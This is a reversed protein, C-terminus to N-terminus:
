NRSAKMAEVWPLKGLANAVRVFGTAEKAQETPKAAEQAKPTEVRSVGAQTVIAAARRNADTDKARLETLEKNAAALTANATALQAGITDAHEKADDREGQAATLQERTTALETNATALEATLRQNTAVIDAQDAAAAPQTPTAPDTGAKAKASM